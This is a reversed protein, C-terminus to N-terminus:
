LVYRVIFKCVQLESTCTRLSKRKVLCKYHDKDSKGVFQIRLTSSCDTQNFSFQCNNSAIDEGNKQWQFQLDDETAEVTFTIDAGTATSQNGLFSKFFTTYYKFKRNM